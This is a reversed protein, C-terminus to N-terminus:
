PLSQPMLIPGEHTVNVGKLLPTLSNDSEGARRDQVCCPRMKPVSLLMEWVRVSLVNIGSARLQVSHCSLRGAGM